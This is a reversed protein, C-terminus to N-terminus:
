SKGAVVARLRKVEDLLARVDGHAHEVFEADDDSTWGFYLEDDADVQLAWAVPEDDSDLLPRVAKWTGAIVGPECGREGAAKWPGHSKAVRQEIEMLRKASLAM